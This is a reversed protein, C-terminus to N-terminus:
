LEDANKYLRAYLGDKKMLEHHNGVEKVDGDQMYIIQDSNRVTYLRHAIVFCTRGSMLNQMAETILAETRTDVNSTAEDLILIKPDSIITRAITLLQKEGASLASNDQSIVTDYGNPLKEIFRDCRAAKAAKKVEDITADLKGFRINDAITGNMVWTDQLVMGFVERLNKKSVTKTDVGDITITGSNVEYFRMLLNVLTTKGAGSPGVIAFTKGPEAKFNVDNMLIRDELYGFAVNKFEVEGKVSPVDIVATPEEEPEEEQELFNFVREISTFGNQINTISSSITLLPSQVMNGYFIFAQFEGITLHGTIIQQAGVLCFIAFTLHNILLSVPLVFGGYFRSKVYNSFFNKAEDLYAGRRSEECGFSKVIAYNGFTDDAISAINALTQKQKSMIRKSKKSIYITLYFNIPLTIVYIMSLKWNTIFMRIFITILLAVQGILNPVTSEFGITFTSIDNTVYSLIEGKPHTDFYKLPLKNLKDQVEGRMRRAYKQFIVVSRRTIIGNAGYGIFYFLAAMGCMILLYTYDIEGSSYVSTLYDTIDGTVKPAYSLILKSSMVILGLVFLSKSYAALDKILNHRKVKKNNM